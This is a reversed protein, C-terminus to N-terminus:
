NFVPLACIFILASEIAVFRWFLLPFRFAKRQETSFIYKLKMPQFDALLRRVASVLASFVPHERLSTKCFM